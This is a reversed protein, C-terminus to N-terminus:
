GHGSDSKRNFSGLLRTELCTRSLQYLHPRLRNWTNVHGGLSTLLKGLVDKHTTTRYFTFALFSFTGSITQSFSLTSRLFKSPTDKGHQVPAIKAWHFTCKQKETKNKIKQKTLVFQISLHTLTFVCM